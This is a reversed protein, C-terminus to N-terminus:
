YNQENVASEFRSRVYSIILLEYCTVIRDRPSLPVEDHLPVM